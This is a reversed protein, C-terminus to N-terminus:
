RSDAFHRAFQRRQDPTTHPELPRLIQSSLERLSVGGLSRPDVAFRERMHDHVARLARMAEASFGAAEAAHQWRPWPVFGSSPPPPMPPGFEGRPSRFEPRGEGGREGPREGPREGHRDFGREPRGDPNRPHHSQFEPSLGHRLMRQVLAVARDGAIERIERLTAAEDAQLRERYKRFLQDEAQWRTELADIVDQAVDFDMGLDLLFEVSIHHLARRRLQMLTERQEHPPLQRLRLLLQPDQRLTEGVEDHLQRLRHRFVDDTNFRYVRRALSDPANSFRLLMRPPTTPDATPPDAQASESGADRLKEYNDAARQRDDPAMQQLQQWREALRQREEPGLSEWRERAAQLQREREAAAASQANGTAADQGVAFTMPTVALLAVFMTARFLRM